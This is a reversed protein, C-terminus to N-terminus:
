DSFNLRHGYHKLLFILVVAWIFMVATTIVLGPDRIISGPSVLELVLCIGALIAGIRSGKRALPMLESVNTNNMFFPM